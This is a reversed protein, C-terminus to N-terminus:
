SVWDKDDFDGMGVCFDVMKVIAWIRYIDTVEQNRLNSVIEYM